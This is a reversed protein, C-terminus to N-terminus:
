WVPTVSELGTKGGGLDKKSLDSKEYSGGCDCRNITAASYKSDGCRKCILKNM